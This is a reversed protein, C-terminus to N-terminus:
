AAVRAWPVGEKVTAEIRAALEAERGRWAALVLSGFPALQDRRRPRSGCKTSRPSRGRTRRRIRAIRVTLRAPACEFEPMVALQVERVALEQWTDHDWMEIAAEEALWLWRFGGNAVPDDDRFAALARKLLPAAADHGETVM